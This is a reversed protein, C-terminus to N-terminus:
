SESEICYKARRDQKSDKSGVLVCGLLWSNSCSSLHWKTLIWSLDWHKLTRTSSSVEPSADREKNGMLVVIVFSFTSSALSWGRPLSADNCLLIKVCSVVESWPLALCNQKIEQLIWVVWILRLLNKYLIPSVFYHPECWLPSHICWAFLLINEMVNKFSAIDDIENTTM